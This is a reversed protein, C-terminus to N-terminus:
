EGAVRIIAKIVGDEYNHAVAFAREAQDFAFRHTVLREGDLVGRHLM